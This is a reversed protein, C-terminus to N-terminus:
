WRLSLVEEKLTDGTATAQRVRVTKRGEVVYGAATALEELVQATQVPVRFFSAQDGVVYFLRSGPKLLPRLSLLHRYMGGFYLRVVAAYRREFDYAIREVAALWPAIMPADGKEKGATVEPAFRLNSMGVATQALALLFYPSLDREEILDRLTLLKHLPLPSISRRILLAATEDPLSRLRSVNSGACGAEDDIGEAKLTAAVKEAIDQAEERLRLPAVDWDTKVATIYAALPNADVGVTVYGQRKAEVATTGSGCFPDLVVSGQPLYAAALMERVLAPSYDLIFGYWRHIGETQRRM